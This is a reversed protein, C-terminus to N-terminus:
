LKEGDKEIIWIGDMFIRKDFGPRKALNEINAATQSVLDLDIGEVVIEDGSVTISAGQKLTLRRPVSEGIFNKIEFTNGKVSVSMPFHGSCVKLKYTHGERVGRFYNKLRAKIAHTLKKERQTKKKQIIFLIKNEEKIFTLFPTQFNKTIEGKTGKITFTGAAVSLSIDNPIDLEDIITENM